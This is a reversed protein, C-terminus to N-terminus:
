SVLMVLLVFVLEALHFNCAFPFNDFSPTHYIVLHPSGGYLQSHATLYVLVAIFTYQSPKMKSDLIVLWQGSISCNLMDDPYPICALLELFELFFNFICFNQYVIVHNNAM